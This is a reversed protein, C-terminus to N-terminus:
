EDSDGETPNKALPFDPHAMLWDPDFWPTDVEAAMRTDPNLDAPAHIKMLNEQHQNLSSM